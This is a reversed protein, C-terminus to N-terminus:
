NYAFDESFEGYEAVAELEKNYGMFRWTVILM